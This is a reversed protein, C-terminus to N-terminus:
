EHRTQDGILDRLDEFEDTSGGVRRVVVENGETSLEVQLGELRVLVPEAAKLGYGRKWDTDAIEGELEAKLFGLLDRAADMASIGSSQLRLLEGRQHEVIRPLDADGSAGM